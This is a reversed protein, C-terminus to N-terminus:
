RAGTGDFCRTGTECDGAVLAPEAAFSCGALSAASGLDSRLARACIRIRAAPRRNSVRAQQGASDHAGRNRSRRWVGDALIWLHAACRAPRGTQDEGEVFDRGLMPKVGLTSLFNTTTQVAPVTKPDGNGALTFGDGSFAALSQYSKATRKWDLLDPYSCDYASDPAQQRGEALTVLRGFIM